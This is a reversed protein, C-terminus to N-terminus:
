NGGGELVQVETHGFGVEGRDVRPPIPALLMNLALSQSSDPQCQRIRGVPRGDREWPPSKLFPRLKSFKLFYWVKGDVEKDEVCYCHM